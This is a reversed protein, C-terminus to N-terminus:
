KKNDIRYFLYEQGLIDSCTVFSTITVGVIGPFILSQGTFYFGDLKTRARIPTRMQEMNHKIGYISGEPSLTYYNNTLPTSGEKYDVNGKLEPIITVLKNEVRNLINKKMEYYDEPRKGVKTDGWSEYNDWKDISLTEIIATKSDKLRASPVTVYMFFDDQNESVPKEYIRNIDYSPFYLTDYKYKSLDSNSSFYGGFHSTTNEMEEIRSTFAPRFVNEEFFGLANQPNTNSIINDTEYFIEDETEVGTIKKDVTKIKKVKKRFLIEGGNEKFSDTLANILADGGGDIDYTSSYLANFFISHTGLPTDKPPVGYLFSHALIVAKLKESAGILDLYDNISIEFSKHEKELDGKHDRNFYVFSRKLETIKDIYAKITKAESPFISILEECINKIGSPLEITLDPFILTQFHNKDYSILNIKDLIGLYGWYMSLIQDKDLEPAFHFGTEFRLGKRYFSHLYGGAKIHQELILVKKNEKALIIGACLGGLGSGIIIYDYKM